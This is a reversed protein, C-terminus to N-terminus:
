EASRTENPMHLSCFQQDQQRRITSRPSLLKIQQHSVTDSVRECLENLGGATM